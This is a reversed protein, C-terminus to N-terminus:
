VKRKLFINRVYDYKLNIINFTSYICTHRIPNNLTVFIVREPFRAPWSGDNCKRQSEMVNDITKIKHHIMTKYNKGRM